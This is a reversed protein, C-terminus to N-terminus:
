AASKRTQRRRHLDSFDPVRDIQKGDDRYLTRMRNARLASDVARHVGFTLTIRCPLVKVVRNVTAVKERVLWRGFRHAFHRRRDYVQEIAHTNGERSRFLSQQVKAAKAAGFMVAGCEGASRRSLLKQIREVVLHQTRFD